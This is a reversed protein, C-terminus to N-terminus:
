LALKASSVQTSLHVDRVFCHSFTSLRGVDSESLRQFCQGQQDALIVGRGDKASVSIGSDSRQLHYAAGEFSQLGSLSLFEDLTKILRQALTETFLAADGQPALKGLWYLRDEVTDNRTPPPQTELVRALAGFDQKIQPSIQEKVNSGILSSLQDVQFQLVPTDQSDSIQYARDRANFAITYGESKYQQGYPTDSGFTDLLYHCVDALRLRIQLDSYRADSQRAFTPPQFPCDGRPALRGLHQLRETPSRSEIGSAARLNQFATSFDRLAQESLANYAIAAGTRSYSFQLLAQGQDTSVTYQKAQTDYELVYREAFYAQGTASPTGFRQLLETAAEAVQLEPQQRHQQQVLFQNVRDRFNAPQSQKVHPPPSQVPPVVQVPQPFDHTTIRIAGKELPHEQLAAPNKAQTGGPVQLANLLLTVQNQDLKDVIPPKGPVGSFVVNPGIEVRVLTQDALKGQAELSKLLIQVFRHKDEQLRQLRETNLSLDM